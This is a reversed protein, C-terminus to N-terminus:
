VHARGIQVSDGAQATFMIPSTAILKGTIQPNKRAPITYVSSSDAQNQGNQVLWVYIDEQFQGTNEYQISYSLIYTKAKSIIISNNGDVVIDSSSLSSSGIPVIYTQSSNSMVVNAGYWLTGAYSLNATSDPTTGSTGSPEVEVWQSSDADTYYIFLSRFLM